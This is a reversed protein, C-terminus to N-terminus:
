KSASTGLRRLALRTGLIAYTLPVANEGDFWWWGGSPWRDGTCERPRRRAVAVRAQGIPARWRPARLRAPAPSCLEAHRHSPVTRNKNRYVSV